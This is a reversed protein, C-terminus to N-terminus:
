SQLVKAGCAPCFKSSTPVQAKCAQCVGTPVLSQGCHQCFNGPASSKGCAPCAVQPAAKAPQNMMQNAMAMGAGLGVGAGAAGGPNKAAEGIAEATKLKTYQDLDGIVGM